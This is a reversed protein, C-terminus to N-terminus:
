VSLPSPNKSSFGSHIVQPDSMVEQMMMEWTVMVYEIGLSEFTSSSVHTFALSRNPNSGMYFMYGMNMNEEALERLKNLVPLVVRGLDLRDNRRLEACKLGYEALMLIEEM